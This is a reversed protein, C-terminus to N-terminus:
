SNIAEKLGFIRRSGSVGVACDVYIYTGQELLTKGLYACMIMYEQLM